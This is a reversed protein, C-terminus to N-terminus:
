KNILIETESFRTENTIIDGSSRTQLGEIDPKGYYFVSRSLDFPGKSSTKAFNVNRYFVSAEISASSEFEVSNLDLRGYVTADNFLFNGTFTSYTFLADDRFRTLSFDSKGDCDLNHFRAIGRFETGQFSLKGTIKAKFFDIGGNVLSEQMSFHKESTFATFYSQRGNLTVNNFAARERFIAGTFNAMGDVTMNSFDAEGRFDCAEFTLHSGFRVQVRSNQNQGNTTVRGMFICNLFTVPLDTRAIEISSSFIEHRSILSFDLDGLIIKDKILVPKGKNLTKIIVAANMGNNVAAEEGAHCGTTLFLASFILFLIRKMASNNHICLLLNQILFWAM